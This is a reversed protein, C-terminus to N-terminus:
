IHILSLQGHPTIDCSFIEGDELICLQGTLSFVDYARGVEYLSDKKSLGSEATILNSIEEKRSIIIEATKSLIKQREFRTLNPHFNKAIQMVENVQGKSARPVSGVIEGNFPNLINISRNEGELKKGGVRMKEKIM